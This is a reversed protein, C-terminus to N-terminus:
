QSGQDDGPALMSPPRLELRPTAGDGPALAPDLRLTPSPARNPRFIRVRPYGDDPASAEGETAAAGDTRPDADAADERDGRGEDDAPAEGEAAAEPEAELGPAEPAAEAPAEGPAVTHPADKACAGALSLILLAGLARLANTMTVEQTAAGITFV